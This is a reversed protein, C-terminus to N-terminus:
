TASLIGLSVGSGGVSIACSSIGSGSGSTHVTRNTSTVYLVHGGGNISLGGTSAIEVTGVVSSLDSCSPLSKVLGIGTAFLVESSFYSSSGGVLM